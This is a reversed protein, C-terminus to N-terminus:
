ARKLKNQAKDIDSKLDEIRKLTREEDNPSLKGRRKLREYKSIAQEHRKIAKDYDSQAREKKKLAKEARRQKKEAVKQRKEALKIQKEREKAEKIQIKKEKFAAMIQAQEEINLSTTVDVGDKLISKGKVEYTEGNSVVEQANVVVTMCVFLLTIYFKM